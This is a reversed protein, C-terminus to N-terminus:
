EKGWSAKDWAEVAEPESKVVKAIDFVVMDVWPGVRSGPAPGKTALSYAGKHEMDPGAAFYFCHRARTLQVWVVDNKQGHSQLTGYYIGGHRDFVVVPKGLLNQIFKPVSM